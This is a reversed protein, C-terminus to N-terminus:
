DQHPRDNNQQQRDCIECIPLARVEHARRLGFCTPYLHYCRGRAPAVYVMPIGFVPEVQPPHQVVPLPAEPHAFRQMPRQEPEPQADPVEPEPDPPLPEQEGVQDDGNVAQPVAQLQPEPEAAPELRNPWCRFWRVFQLTNSFMRGADLVFHVLVYLFLMLWLMDSQTWPTPADPPSQAAVTSMLQTLVALQTMKPAVAFQPKWVPRQKNAQQVDTIGAVTLQKAQELQQQLAPISCDVMGLAPLAEKLQQANVHKTLVNLPNRTGAVKRMLIQGRTVLEQVYVQSVELHLLKSSLGIRKSAALAAASDTYLRPTEVLQIKFDMEALAKLFVIERAARSSGRIEGDASSTAPLGPQTQSSCLVVTGGIVCVVGDTTRRTLTDGAWDSDAFTDFSLPGKWDDLYTIKGFLRTHALYRALLRLNVM